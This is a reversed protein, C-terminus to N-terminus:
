LEYKKGENHNMPRIGKTQQFALLWDGTVLLWYGTGLLWGGAASM